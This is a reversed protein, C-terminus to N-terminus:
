HYTLLRCGCTCSQLTANPVRAVGNDNAESPNSTLIPHHGRDIAGTAINVERRGNSETGGLSSLTSRGEMCVTHRAAYKERGPGREDLTPDVYADLLPDTKMEGPRAAPLNATEEESLM